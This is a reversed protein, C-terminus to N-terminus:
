AGRIYYGWLFVIDINVVYVSLPEGLRHLGGVEDPGITHTDLESGVLPIGYGTVRILRQGLELSVPNLDLMTKDDNVVM